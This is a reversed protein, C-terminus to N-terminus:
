ARIKVPIEFCAADGNKDNLGWHVTLSVTPYVPLIKFSNKYVYTEGAKLPCGVKNEGEADYIFPCASTGYYGPFPLPVDLLIGQADTNVDEFDRNPTFKM